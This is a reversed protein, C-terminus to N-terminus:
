TLMIALAGQVGSSGDVQGRDITILDKQGILEL